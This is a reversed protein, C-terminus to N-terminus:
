PPPVEAERLAKKEGDLKQAVGPPVLPEEQSQAQPDYRATSLPGEPIDPISGPRAVHLAFAKEM